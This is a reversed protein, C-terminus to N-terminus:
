KIKSEPWNSHPGYRTGSVPVAVAVLIACRLQWGRRPPLWHSGRPRTRAVDPSIEPARGALTAWALSEDRIEFQPELTPQSFVPQTRTQDPRDYQSDDYRLRNLRDARWSKLGELWTGAEAPNQPGAFFVEGPAPL